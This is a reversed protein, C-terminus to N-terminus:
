LLPLPLPPLSVLRPWSNALLEWSLYSRRRVRHPHFFEHYNSRSVVCQIHHKPLVNAVLSYLVVYWMAVYMLLVFMVDYWIEFLESFLLSSQSATNMGFITSWLTTNMGFFTSWLVGCRRENWTLQYGRGRQRQQDRGCWCHVIWIIFFLRRYRRTRGVFQCLQGWGMGKRQQRQM